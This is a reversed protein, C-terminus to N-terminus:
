NNMSDCPLGKKKKDEALLKLHRLAYIFSPFSNQATFIYLIYYIKTEGVLALGLIM